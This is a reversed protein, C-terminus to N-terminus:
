LINEKAKCASAGYYLEAVFSFWQVGSGLWAAQTGCSLFGVFDAETHWCSSLRSSSPRVSGSAKTSCSPELLLASVSTHM